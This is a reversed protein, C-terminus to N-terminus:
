TPDWVITIKRTAKDWSVKAGFPESIFRLPVFTRGKVIQPPSDLLKEEDNVKAIPKGKWLRITMDHRIITIKGEKADWEVKCGFSESIFRIPVMTRGSIIAPPSDLAIPKGNLYATASDITLELTVGKDTEIYVPISIMKCKGNRENIEISSTFSQGSPLSSAFITASIEMSQGAELNLETQSLELWNNVPKLIFSTKRTSTLVFKQTGTKGRDVFGFDLVTPKVTFCTQLENSVSVIVPLELTGEGYDATISWTMSAGADLAETVATVKVDASQGAKLSLSSPSVQIQPSSGILKVNL